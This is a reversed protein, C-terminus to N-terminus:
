QPYRFSIVVVVEDADGKLSEVRRWDLSIAM